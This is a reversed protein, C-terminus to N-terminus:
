TVQVHPCCFLGSFVILISSRPPRFSARPIDLAMFRPAPNLMWAAYIWVTDLDACEPRGRSSNRMRMFYARLAKVKELSFHEPEKPM